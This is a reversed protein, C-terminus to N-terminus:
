PRAAAAVQPSTCARCRRAEIPIMELCEACQKTTTPAAAERRRLAGVGKVFVLFVVLAIVVFDIIAGLVAGVRLHLPTVTWGTWEGAPMVAGVLPMILGEVIATVIKGFAAGIVVAVALEVVNGKAIFAKFDQALSM